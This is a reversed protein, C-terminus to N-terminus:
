RYWGYVMRRTVRAWDAGGLLESLRPQKAPRKNSQPEYGGYSRKERRPTSAAPLVRLPPASQRERRGEVRAKAKAMERPKETQMCRAVTSLGPKVIVPEAYRISKSSRHPHSSSSRKRETHHTSVSHAPRVSHSKDPLSFRVQKKAEKRQPEYYYSSRHAM